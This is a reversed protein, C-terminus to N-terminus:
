SSGTIRGLHQSQGARYEALAENALRDLADTSRSFAEEWRRESELEELLWNALADQEPEPLKQAEAFAKRLLQTM